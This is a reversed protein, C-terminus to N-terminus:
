VKGDPEADMEIPVDGGEYIDMSTVNLAPEDNVIVYDGVVEVQLGELTTDTINILLLQYEGDDLYVSEGKVMISGVLVAHPEVVDYEEARCEGIVLLAMTVSLCLSFVKRM